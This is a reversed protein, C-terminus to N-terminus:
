VEWLIRFIEVLAGLSSFFYFLRKFILRAKSMCLYKHSKSFDSTSCFIMYFNNSM